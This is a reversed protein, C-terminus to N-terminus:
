LPLAHRSAIRRSHVYICTLAVAAAEFYCSPGELSAFAAGHHASLFAKM